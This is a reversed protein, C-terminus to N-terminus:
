AFGAPANGSGPERLRDADVQVGEVGGATLALAFNMRNLLASSNVWAEAKMSYGTPPQMAYLPMGM